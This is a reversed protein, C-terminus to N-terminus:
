HAEIGYYLTVFDNGHRDKGAALHGLRQDQQAILWDDDQCENLTALQQLERLSEGITMESNYLNLDCSKRPSDDDSVALLMLDGADCRDLAKTMLAAFAPLFPTPCLGGFREALEQQDNCPVLSYRSLTADEPVLPNWKVAVHILQERAPDIRSSTTLECYIKLYVDGSATQEYGLHVVHTDPWFDWLQQSKEPPCDVRELLGALRQRAETASSAIALKHISMLFRDHDASGNRWRVSYEKGYSAASDTVFANLLAAFDPM